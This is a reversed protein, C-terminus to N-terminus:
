QRAIYTINPSTEFINYPLMKKGEGLYLKYQLVTVMYKIYLLWCYNTLVKIMIVFIFSSTDDVGRIGRCTALTKFGHKIKEVKSPSLQWFDNSWCNWGLLLQISVSFKMNRQLKLLSLKTLILPCLLCTIERDHSFQLNVIKWSSNQDSFQLNKTSTKIHKDTWLKCDVKQQNHKKLHNQLNDSYLLWHNINVLAPYSFIAWTAIFLLCYQSFVVTEFRCSFTFSL